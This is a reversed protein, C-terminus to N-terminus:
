TRRRPPPTLVEAFAARVGERFKALIADMRERHERDLRPGPCDPHHYGHRELTTCFGCGPRAARM